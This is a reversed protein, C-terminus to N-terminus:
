NSLNNNKNSDILLNAKQFLSYLSSYIQSFSLNLIANKPIVIVYIDKKIEDSFHLVCEKLRRKTKNRTVAKGVKKSVSYGIKFDKTKLPLYVLTLYENSVYKGNKFLYNFQKRKKLRNQKKIM